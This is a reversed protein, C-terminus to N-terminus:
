AQCCDNAFGIGCGPLGAHEAITQDEINGKASRLGGGASSEGPDDTLNHCVGFAPVGALDLCGACPPEAKGEVLPSVPEDQETLPLNEMILESVKAERVIRTTFVNIIMRQDHVDLMHEPLAMECGVLCTINFLRISCTGGALLIAHNKSPDNPPLDIGHSFLKRHIPLEPDRTLIAQCLLRADPSREVWPCSFHRFWVEYAIKLFEFLLDDLNLTWDKWLPKHEFLVVTPRCRTVPVYDTYAEYGTVVPQSEYCYYGQAQSASRAALTLAALLVKLKSNTPTKEKAPTPQKANQHLPM